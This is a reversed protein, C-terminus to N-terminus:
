SPTSLIAKTSFPLAFRGAMEQKLLLNAIIIDYKVNEDSKRCSCVHYKDATKVASKIDGDYELIEATKEALMMFLM